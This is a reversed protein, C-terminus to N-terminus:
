RLNGSIYKMKSFDLSIFDGVKFDNWVVSKIASNVAMLGSFHATPPFIALEKAQESEASADVIDDFYFGDGFLFNQAVFGTASASILRVGRKRCLRAISLRSAFSDTADICITSNEFINAPANEDLISEFFEVKCDPNRARVFEASVLAKSKGIDSPTYLTQRHLNSLSVNDADFICIRGFGVSALLPLVASGVGGAGALVVSARMLKGQGEEGFDALSMQRVYKEFSNM